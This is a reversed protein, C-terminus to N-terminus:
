RRSIADPLIGPRTYRHVIGLQCHRGCRRPRLHQLQPGRSIEVSDVDIPDIPVRGSTAFGNVSINAVGIGRIRNSGQPNGQISDGVMGNRDVSYNTYNGTGETAGEYAFIDNIDLMAFDTMQQKTVVSISSGLDELKTNLRTGSMTNTALYGSNSEKVEFPSLQLVEGDEGSTETPLSATKAKDARILSGEGPNARHSKDADYKEYAPQLPPAVQALMVTTLSLFAIVSLFRGSLRSPPSWHLKM